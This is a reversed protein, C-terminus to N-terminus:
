TEAYASRIAKIKLVGADIFIAHAYGFGELRACTPPHHNQLRRGTGPVTAVFPKPKKLGSDDLPIEAATSLDLRGRNAEMIQVSIGAYVM